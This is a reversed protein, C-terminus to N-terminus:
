DTLPFSLYVSYSEPTKKVTLQHDKPFLLALRKKSNQTGIGGAQLTTDQRLGTPDLTNQCDLVMRKDQISLSIEIKTEGQSNTGLHKFTNEVFPILLLPPMHYALNESPLNLLIEVTDELRIKELEVFNQLYDMEKQVPVQDAQTEYLSYRLLDSLKLMLGPLKKDQAVSMGYLNNLSNFLFHPNLQSKLTKLEAERQQKQRTFSQYAISFAMGVLSSLIIIGFINTLSGITPIEQDLGRPNHVLAKAIADIIPSARPFSVALLTNGGLFLAIGLLWKRRRLFKLTVLNNYYVPVMVFYIMFLIVVVQLYQLSEGPGAEVQINPSLITGILVWILLNKLLANLLPRKARM